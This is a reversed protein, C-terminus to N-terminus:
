QYDLQYLKYKISKHNCEIEVPFQCGSKRRYVTYPLCVAACTSLESSDCKTPTECRMISNSRVIYCFLQLLDDLPMRASHCIVAEYFM